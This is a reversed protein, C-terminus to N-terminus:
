ASFLHLCNASISRSKHKFFSPLASHTAVKETDPSFFEKCKPKCYMEPTMLVVRTKNALVNEYIKKADADEKVHEIGLLPYKDKAGELASNIISLLPCIVLVGKTSPAEYGGVTSEFGKCRESTFTEYLFPIMLYVVSKGIGTRAHVVTMRNHVISLLAEEQCERLELPPKGDFQPGRTRSLKLTAETICAKQLHSEAEPNSPGNM